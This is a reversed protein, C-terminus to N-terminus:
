CADATKLGAIYYLNNPLSSLRLFGPLTEARLGFVVVPKPSCRVKRLESRSRSCGGAQIRTEDFPDFNPRRRIVVNPCIRSIAVKLSKIVLSRMGTRRSEWNSVVETRGTNGFPRLIALDANDDKGAQRLMANGGPHSSLYSTMDYVEGKYAIWLDDATCHRAVENLTYEGSM